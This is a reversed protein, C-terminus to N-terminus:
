TERQRVKDQERQLMDGLEQVQKNKLRVEKELGVGRGKEAELQERLQQM